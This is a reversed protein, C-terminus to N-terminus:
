ATTRAGAIAAAFESVTPLPGHSRREEVAAPDRRELLRVIITGEIMDSSVVVFEIGAETLAALAEPSLEPIMSLIEDRTKFQRIM